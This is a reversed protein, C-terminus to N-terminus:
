WGVRHVLPMETREQTRLIKHVEALTEGSAVVKSGVLAVWKGYAWAPPSALWDLEDRTSPQSGFPSVKAKDRNDFIGWVRQVRSHRPFRARAAAAMRRATQYRDEDLLALIKDVVTDPNANPPLSVQGEPPSKTAARGGAAVTEAGKAVMPSASLRDSM